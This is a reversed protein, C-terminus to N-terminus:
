IHGKLMFCYSKKGFLINRSIGGLNIGTNQGMIEMKAHM